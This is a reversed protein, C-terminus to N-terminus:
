SHSNLPSNASSQSRTARTSVVASTLKAVALMGPDDIGITKEGFMRARGVKCPKDRFDDLAQAAAVEAATSVGQSNDLGDTAKAIADLADLVTKDGLNAGGRAIMADRAAVLMQSFSAWPVETRDKCHKACTMLGTAFLTGLSSGTGALAARALATFIDGLDDDPDARVQSMKDLVRALMGGTDGDGLKADALNLDQEFDKWPTLRAPM